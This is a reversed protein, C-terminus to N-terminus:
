QKWKKQKKQMKYQKKQMKYQQKQQAVQQKAQRKQLKNTEMTQVEVKQQQAYADRTAIAEATDGNAKIVAQEAVAVDKKLQEIQNAIELFSRDSETKAVFQYQSGTVSTRFDVLMSTCESILESIVQLIQADSLNQAPNAIGKVRNLLLTEFNQLHQKRVYEFCNNVTDNLPAPTNRRASM